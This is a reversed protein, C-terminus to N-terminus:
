GPGDNKSTRECGTKSRVQGALSLTAKAEQKFDDRVLRAGMLMMRRQFGRTGPFFLEKWKARVSDCESM